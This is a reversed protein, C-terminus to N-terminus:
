RLIKKFALRFSNLKKKFESYSNFYFLSNIIYILFLENNLFIIKIFIYFYASFFLKVRLYGSLFTYYYYYNNNNNYFILLLIIFFVLKLNM